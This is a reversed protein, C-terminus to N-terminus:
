FRYEAQISGLISSTFTAFNNAVALKSENQDAPTISDVSRDHTFTEVRASLWPVPALFLYVGGGLNNHEFGVPNETGVNHLRNGNVQEFHGTLGVGIKETFSYQVGGKIRTFFDPGDTNETKDYTFQALHVDADLSLRRNIKTSFHIIEDSRTLILDENFNLQSYYAKIQLTYSSQEQGLSIFASPLSASISSEEGNIYDFGLGM